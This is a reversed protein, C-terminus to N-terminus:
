TGNMNAASPSDKTAHKQGIFVFALHQNQPNTCPILLHLLASTNDNTQNDTTRLMFCTPSFYILFDDGDKRQKLKTIGISQPCGSKM